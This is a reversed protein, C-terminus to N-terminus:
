GNSVADAFSQVPLQSLFAPTETVLAKAFAASATAGEPGVAFALGMADRSRFASVVETSMEDDASGIIGAFNPHCAVDDLFDSLGQPTWSAGRDKAIVMLGNRMAPNLMMEPGDSILANFNIEGFRRAHDEPQHDAGDFLMGNAAIMFGTSERNRYGYNYFSFQTTRSPDLSPAQVDYRWQPLAQALKLM